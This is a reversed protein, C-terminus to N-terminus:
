HTTISDIDQIHMLKDICIYTHKDFYKDKCIYEDGCICRNICLGVYILKNEDLALIDVGAQKLFVPDHYRGTDMRVKILPGKKVLKM